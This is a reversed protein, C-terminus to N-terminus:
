LYKLLLYYWFGGKDKLSRIVLFGQARLNYPLQTKVIKVKFYKATNRM